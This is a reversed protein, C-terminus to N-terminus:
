IHILSLGFRESYKGPNQRFANDVADCIKSYQGTPRNEELLAKIIDQRRSQDPVSNLYNRLADIVMDNIEGKYLEALAPPCALINRSDQRKQLAQALRQELAVNKARLDANQRELSEKQSNLLKIEEEAFSVIENLNELEQTKEEEKQAYEKRLRAIESDRSSKIEEIRKQTRLATIGEYSVKQPLAAHLASQSIIDYLEGEIDTTDCPCIIKRIGNPWHIGVAGNYTNKGNTRKKLEFSFGRSPEILVHAMGALRFAINEPSARLGNSSDRSVYVVPLINESENRIIEAVFELDDEKLEFPKHNTYLTTGDMGGGLGRVVDLVIRPKSIGKCVYGIKQATYEHTVAVLFGTSDICATVDTTRVADGTEVLRVGYCDHNKEVDRVSEIRVHGKSFSFGDQGIGNLEQASINRHPSGAIWKTIIGALDDVTKKRDVPFVTQYLLAM